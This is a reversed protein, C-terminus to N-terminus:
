QSTRKETEIHSLLARVRGAFTELSKRDRSSLAVVARAEPDDLRPYSGVRVTPFRAALEALAAAFEGEYARTRIEEHAFPVGQLRPAISEFMPRMVEPIGPLVFINGVICGPIATLPNPILEAGEPLLAMALRAENLGAGYRARIIREADPHAVLPRGTAQAVAQRTVDDHTPGIGGSTFVYDCRRSWKRLFQALAARRDPFVVFREVAVGIEFLRRAVYSGNTDQVRGAVIEDGVICIAATTEGQEPAARSSDM